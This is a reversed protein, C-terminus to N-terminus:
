NVRENIKNKFIEADFIILDVENMIARYLCNSNIRQLDTLMFNLYTKDSTIFQHIEFHKKIKEFDKKTKEWFLVFEKKTKEWYLKESILSLKIENNNWDIKEGVNTKVIPNNVSIYTIEMKSSPIIFEEGCLYIENESEVLTNLDENNFAIKEILPYYKTDANYQQLNKIKLDYKELEDNWNIKFISCINKVVDSSNLNIEKIANSYEDLDRDELWTILKKNLIYEFIKPLYFNEQLQELSKVEIGGRMKLRFKLKKAM